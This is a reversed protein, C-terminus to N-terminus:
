NEWTPAFSPDIIRENRDLSHITEMEHDSLRFDFIDLNARRHEASSAKPIAAVHSQQVLWRLAVQAASKGHAQGIDRLTDDSLVQGRALPSYATLLIGRDRCVELLETQALFPHYEVQNCAIPAHDAAERLQTPTFNSVGIHHVKQQEVLEMMADLTETVPVDDVPWHILLLDVYDTGLRRLSDEMSSVVDDHAVNTHWVKTTLWIDERDVSSEAIGRGVQEENEYAQATDVHRYGMQLADLVGKRCDRGKLQWTGFGLKPVRDGALEFNDDTKM